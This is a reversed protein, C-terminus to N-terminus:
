IKIITGSIVYDCTVDRVENVYSMSIEYSIPLCLCIRFDPGFHGNNYSCTHCDNSSDLFGLSRFISGNEPCNQSALIM